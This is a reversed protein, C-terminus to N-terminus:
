RGLGALLMTIKLLTASSGFGSMMRTSLALWILSLMSVSLSRVILQIPRDAALANADLGLLACSLGTDGLHLKPTKILRSLRNTHWPPLVEPLVARALLTVHDTHDTPEAPRPGNASGTLIFRGPKRDRDIAVM